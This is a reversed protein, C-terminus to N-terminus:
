GALRRVPNRELCRSHEGLFVWCASETAFIAMTISLIVFVAGKAESRYCAINGNIFVSPIGDRWTLFLAKGDGHWGFCNDGIYITVWVLRQFEVHGVPEFGAATWTM